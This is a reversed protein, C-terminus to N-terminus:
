KRVVINSERSDLKDSNDNCEPLTFASSKSWTTSMNATFYGVQRM